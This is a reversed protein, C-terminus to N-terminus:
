CGSPIQTVASCAGRAIQGPPPSRRRPETRQEHGNQRDRAAPATGGRHGLPVLRWVTRERMRIILGRPANRDVLEAM